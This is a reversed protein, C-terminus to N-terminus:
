YSVVNGSEECKLCISCVSSATTKNERLGRQVQLKGPTQKAWDPIENPNTAARVLKRAEHNSIMPKLLLNLKQTFSVPQIYQSM